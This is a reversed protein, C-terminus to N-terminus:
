HPLEAGRQEDGSPPATAFTVTINASGAAVSATMPGMPTASGDTVQVTHVPTDNPAGNPINHPITFVTQSGTGSFTAQGSQVSLYLTSPGVIIANPGM